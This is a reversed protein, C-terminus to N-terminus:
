EAKVEAERILKAYKATEIQIFRGFEEPTGGVADAGENALRDRIDPLQLVRTFAQNLQTVIAVPTAKPVVIGQWASSEYGTITEAITPIDPFASLRKANTVALARIRGAKVFQVLSILTGSYVNIQGGVLDNVAPGGGKYPVHALNVAAMNKLLEMALHSSSGTGSSGFTLQGPKSRALQILEKVSSAQVSPHASLLLAIANLQIVPAFDRIPDYPLKRYLGPNVAMNAQLCLLLTYGDAPSKAALDTGIIANAGGRNDVVVQQGLRDALRTSLLRAVIDTGGGPPFPVILRIPKTPYPTTAAHAKQPSAFALAIALTIFVHRM